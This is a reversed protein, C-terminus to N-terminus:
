CYPTKRDRVIRGIILTEEILRAKRIILSPTANMIVEEVLTVSLEIRHKIDKSRDRQAM